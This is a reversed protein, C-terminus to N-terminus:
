TQPPLKKPAEQPLPTAEAPAPHGNYVAGHGMMPLVLVTTGEKFLQLYYPDVAKRDVSLLM